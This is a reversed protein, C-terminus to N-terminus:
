KAPKGEYKEYLGNEQESVILGRSSIDVLTFAFFLLVFLISGIFSFTYFKDDYLLHMFFMVVLTAKVFAVLLAVIIAFPPPLALVSVGVTVVTLVLLAFFVGFYVKLPLVHGTSIDHNKSM